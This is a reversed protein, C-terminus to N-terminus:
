RVPQHVREWGYRIAAQVREWTGPNRQEWARRVEPEIRDWEYGRYPEHNGLTLGYQYAPEFHEYRYGSQALHMQYHERFAPSYRDYDSAAARERDYDRATATGGAMAGATRTRYRVREEAIQEDTYPEADPDWRNWGAQRWHGAREEIDVAGNRQLIDRLREDHGGQSRVMVLTGGRRVGEAYYEARDRPVGMDVLAGLLGGAAGGALAGAGAGLLGALATGLPGAAVIPGIGPITLAGLGVLLGGLGGLAAGIGAGTGAASSEDERPRPEDDRRMRGGGDSWEGTHRTALSIDDQPVGADRLDRVAREASEIDDFLAVVTDAM